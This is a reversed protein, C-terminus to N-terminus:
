EEESSESNTLHGECTGNNDDSNTGDPCTTNNWTVGSVNSKSLNTGELTANTFDANSFDTQEATVELTANTFNANRFTSYDIGVSDTLISNSFNANDFNRYVWTSSREISFHTDTFQNTRFAGVQEGSGGTNGGSPGPPGVPGQISWSIAQENERCGNKDEKNTKRERERRGQRYEEHDTIIRVLGLRPTVCAHIQGDTKSEAFIYQVLMHACFGLSFIIVLLILPSQRFFGTTKNYSPNKSSKKPAAM